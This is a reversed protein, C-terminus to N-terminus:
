QHVTFALVAAKRWDGLGKWMAAGQAAAPFAHLLQWNIRSAAQTVPLSAYSVAGPTSPAGGGGGDAGGSASACALAEAETGGAWTSMDCAYAALLLGTTFRPELFWEDAPRAATLLGAPPPPPPLLASPGRPLGSGAGGNGQSLARTAPASGGAAAAAGSGPIAQLSASSGSVSERVGAAALALVASPSAPAQGGSPRGDSLRHILLPLSAAPTPAASSPLARTADLATHFLGLSCLPLQPVGVGLSVGVGGGGPPPM